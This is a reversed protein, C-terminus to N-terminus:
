TKSAGGDFRPGPVQWGSRKKGKGEWERLTFAESSAVTPEMRMSDMVNNMYNEKNWVLTRHTCRSTNPTMRICRINDNVKQNRSANVLKVNLLQVNQGCQIRTTYVAVQAV